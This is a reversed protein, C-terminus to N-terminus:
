FTFTSIFDDNKYRKMDWKMDQNMDWKEQLKIVRSSVYDDFHVTTIRGQHNHMQHNIFSRQIFSKHEIFLVKEFEKIQFNSFTQINRLQIMALLELLVWQSVMFKFKLSLWRIYMQTFM